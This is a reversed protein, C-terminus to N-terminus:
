LLFSASNLNLDNCHQQNASSVNNATYVSASVAVVVVNILFAVFLTIGSEILFYTMVFAGLLAIADSTAGQGNLKLVFIGKVVGSAPPKVYSMEEFFCGVMVFVLVAILMDLKRVGYRQIGLLLLASLSTLLIGVWVHFDLVTTVASDEVAIIRRLKPIVSGVTPVCDVQAVRAVKAILETFILECALTAQGHPGHLGLARGTRGVHGLNTKAMHDM